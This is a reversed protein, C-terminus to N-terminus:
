RRWERRGSATLGCKSPPQSIVHKPVHTRSVTWGAQRAVTFLRGSYTADSDAVFPFKLSESQNGSLTEYWPCRFQVKAGIDEKRRDCHEEWRLM